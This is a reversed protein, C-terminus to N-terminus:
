GPFQGLSFRTGQDDTCEAMLGYPERHPETSTGGAARVQAV